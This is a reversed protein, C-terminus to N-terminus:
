PLEIAEHSEEDDLKSIMKDGRLYTDPRFGKKEVM